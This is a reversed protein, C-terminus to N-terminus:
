CASEEIKIFNFQRRLPAQVERNFTNVDDRDIVVRYKKRDREELSVNFGMRQLRASYLDANEKSVFVGASIGGKYKGDNLLHADLNRDRMNRIVIEAQDDTDEPKMVVWHYAAKDIYIEPGIDADDLMDIVAAMDADKELNSLNICVRSRGSPEYNEQPLSESSADLPNKLLDVEDYAVISEVVPILILLPYLNPM